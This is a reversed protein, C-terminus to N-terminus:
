ILSPSEELYNNNNPEIKAVADTRTYGKGLKQRLLKDFENEALAQSNFPKAMSSGNTGIRGYRILITAESNLSLNYFKRSNVRDDILQLQETKFIAM